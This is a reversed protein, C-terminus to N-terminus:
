RKLLLFGKVLRDEPLNVMFYYTDDALNEGKLNKGGWDNQYNISEYVTSGWRSYIYLENNAYNELGPIIFTDNVGDGNPSFAIGNLFSLQYISVQDESLCPGHTITWQFTNEGQQLGSIETQPDTPALIVAPTMVPTWNGTGPNPDNGSLQVQAGQFITQDLGADAPISDFVVVGISDSSGSCGNDVWVWYTGTSFVPLIQTTAGESWIYMASDIGANLLITDGQCLSTDNGLFIVPLDKIGVTIEDDGFCGLTDTVTVQYNGATSVTISSSTAGTSWAYTCQPNGAELNLSDNACLTTDTGLQVVPLPEFSAQLTDSGACNDIVEVWYLGSSTVSLTATNEGTSWLFASGPGADLILVNGECLLTDNGLDIVPPSYLSVLVSDTATCGNPDTLDVFWSGASFVTDRSTTTGSSWLYLSGPNGADLVLTDGPCISTDPGLNLNPPTHQAINLTNTETCGNSDVVMFTYTGSPVRFLSDAQFSNGGDSSYQYPMGSQFPVGGTAQLSVNASDGVCLVPIPSTTFSLQPPNVITTFQTDSLCGLADMIMVGYNGASLGTFPQAPVYTSGSDISFMYPATGGSPSLQIKGDNSNHCSINSDLRTFTLPVPDNMVVQVTNSTCGGNSRVVLDFGGASLNLFTSDNIPTFTQGADISYELPRFLNSAHITLNGDNGGVCAPSVMTVSDITPLSAIVAISDAGSDADGDTITLVVNFTDNTLYPHCVVPDTAIASGDGFDWNYTWGMATSHVFDTNPNMNTLTGQHSFVSSDVVTTSGPGDNFSWLGILHPHSADLQKNMNGQIQAQTRVTDWVRVEDIMGDIKFDEDNDIFAGIRFLQPTSYDIPGSADGITGVLNGNLYLKRDTGDYSGAFHNWQNLPISPTTLTGYVINGDSVVFEVRDGAGGSVGLDYGSKNPGTDWVNGAISVWRQYSRFYVWAEVTVTSAPQLSPPNAAEVYDNVGDFDLAFNNTPQFCITDGICIITDTSSLAANPSAQQSFVPLFCFCLTLWFLIGVKLYM